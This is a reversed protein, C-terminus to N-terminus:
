RSAARRPRPRTASPPSPPKRSPASTSGTAARNGSKPSTTVVGDVQQWSDGNQGFARFFPNNTVNGFDLNTRVGPAQVLASQLGTRGTPILDLAEGTLQTTASTSAVDVVPAAGSVTITEELTGLKLAVDVRATFGATLRIDERRLGGFGQLEYQVTYTGIPLPTLRYEGRENTVATVQPVQLAPSTATVTVGPLVAGNDDTVQGIISADQSQAFVPSAALLLTCALVFGFPFRRDSSPAVVRHPM